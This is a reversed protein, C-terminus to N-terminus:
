ARTLQNFIADLASQVISRDDNFYGRQELARCEGCEWSGFDRNQAPIGPHEKKLGATTARGSGIPTVIWALRVM